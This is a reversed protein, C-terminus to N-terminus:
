QKDYNMFIVPTKIVCEIGGDEIKDKDYGLFDMPIVNKPKIKKDFIGVDCYIKAILESCFLSNDSNVQFNEDIYDREWRFIKFLASVLGLPNYEYPTYIYKKIIDNFINKINNEHDLPNNILHGVAIHTNKSKDYSELVKDFDRIQVGFYSKGNIDSVNDAL